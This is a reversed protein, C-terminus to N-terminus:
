HPITSYIIVSSLRERHGSLKEKKEGIGFCHNCKQTM